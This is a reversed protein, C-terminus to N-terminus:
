EGIDDDHNFLPAEMQPLGGRLNSAEERDQIANSQKNKMMNEETMRIKEEPSLSAMEEQRYARGQPMDLFQARLRTEKEVFHHPNQYRDDAIDAKVRDDEAKFDDFEDLPPPLPARVTNTVWHYPSKGYMYGTEHIFGMAPGVCAAFMLMSTAM